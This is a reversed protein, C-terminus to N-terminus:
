VPLRDPQHCHHSRSDLDPRHRGGRSCRGALGPRRDRDGGGFIAHYTVLGLVAELSFMALNFCLKLGRLRSWLLLALGAGLVYATVYQQPALFTLGAIAPIERLSLTHSSREAPLHIVLVEVLAFLPLLIFWAVSPVATHPHALFFPVAVAAAAAAMLAALQWVRREPLTRRARTQTTM